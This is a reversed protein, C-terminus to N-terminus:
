PAAVLIPTGPTRRSDPPLPRQVSSVTPRSSVPTLRIMALSPMISVPPPVAGRGVTQRISTVLAGADPYQCQATDGPAVTARPAVSPVM